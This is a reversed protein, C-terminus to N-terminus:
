GYFDVMGRDWGSLYLCTVKDDYKIWIEVVMQEELFSIDYIESFEQLLEVVTNMLDVEHKSKTRRLLTFYGIERGYLLFFDDFVSEDIKKQCERIAGKIKRQNMPGLQEVISKNIDYLNMVMQGNAGKQIDVKDWTYGSRIYYANENKVFAVAGIPYKDMDVTLELMDLYNEFETVDKNNM